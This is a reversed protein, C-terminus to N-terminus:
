ALLKEIFQAIGEEDNSGTVEAASNLADASANGMAVGHGAWTLLEVDNLNDGFAVVEAADIELQACLRALGTAKTVAGRSVELFPVGSTTPHVDAADLEKAAALLEGASAVPDQLVLKVSPHALVEDLEAWHVEVPWGLFRREREEDRPFGHQLIHVNGAERVTRVKADPFRELMALAFARQQDVDLYEQFLVERTVLDMGVSGNSGIAVGELATGAVIAAIAVCQRGSVAVVAMGQRRAKAM